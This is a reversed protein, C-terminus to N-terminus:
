SKWWNQLSSNGTQLNENVVIDIKILIDIPM